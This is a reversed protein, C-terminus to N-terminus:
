YKGCFTHIQNIVGGGEPQELFKQEHLNSCFVSDSVLCARACAFVCVCVRLTVLSQTQFSVFVCVSVRTHCSVSCLYGGGKLGPIFVAVPDNM